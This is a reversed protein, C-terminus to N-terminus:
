ISKPQKVVEIDAKSPNAGAELLAEVIRAAGMKTAAHIVTFEGSPLHFTTDPKAKACLLIKVLEEDENEVAMALPTSDKKEDMPCANNPNAKAELLLKTIQCHGLETTLHLPTRSTEPDITNPNANAELLLRVVETTDDLSQLSEIFDKAHPKAGKGLLMKVLAAKQHFAAFYLATEGDNNKAHVDAKKDLLLQVIKEQNAAAKQDTTFNECAQLLATQGAENPKNPNANHDLLLKVWQADKEVALFLPTMGDDNMVDLGMEDSKNVAEGRNLVFRDHIPKMAIITEIANKAKTIDNTDLADFLDQVYINPM